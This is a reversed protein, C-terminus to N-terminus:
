DPGLGIAVHMPEQLAGVALLVLAARATRSRAQSRRAAEAAGAVIAFAVVPHDDITSEASRAARAATSRSAPISTIAGSMEPGACAILSIL